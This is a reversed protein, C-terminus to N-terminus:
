TPTDKITSLMDHQIPSPSFNYMVMCKILYDHHLNSHTCFIYQKNPQHTNSPIQSHLITQEDRQVCPPALTM